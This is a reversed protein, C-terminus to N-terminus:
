ALQKLIKQLEEAIAKNSYYQDYLARGASAIGPLKDQNRYAWDIERAIAQADGRPVILCNVHNLFMDTNKNAGLLAVSGSALFQYVKGNIVHQAQFTEGFPGAVNIASGAILAPLEDFPVWQRYEIQAGRGQAEKIAQEYDGIRGALLFQIHPNDKLVEAAEIVYQPGHLPLM